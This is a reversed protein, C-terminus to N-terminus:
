KLCRGKNLFIAKAEHEVRKYYEEIGERNQDCCRKRSKCELYCFM